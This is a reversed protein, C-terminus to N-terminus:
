DGEEAAGQLGTRRLNNKHVIAANRKLHALGRWAMATQGFRAEFEADNMALIGQPDVPQHHEGNSDMTKNPLFPKNMPCCLQCLDCGYLQNGIAKMESNQLEGKKQTLYSICANPDVSYPKIAQNPCATICLSCSEPCSSQTLHNSDTVVQIEDRLRSYDIDTVLLGINFFSGLVPSIVMGNKGWFGLGAKVAFAREALHGSDVMIVSRCNLSAALEELIATLTKHYDTGYGLSSLNGKPSPCYAKGLVIVSKANPLALQPNIRKDTDRSVFPTQIAQLRKREEELPEANCIGIITDMKIFGEYCISLM